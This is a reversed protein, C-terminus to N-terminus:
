LLTPMPLTPCSPMRTTFRNRLCSWEVDPPNGDLVESRTTAHDRGVHRTMVVLAAAEEDRGDGLATTIARHESRLQQVTTPWDHFASISETVYNEIAGRLGAILATAVSNGSIRVVALTSRRM